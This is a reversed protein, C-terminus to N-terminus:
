HGGTRVLAWSHDRHHETKGDCSNYTCYDHLGFRANLEAVRNICDHCDDYSPSMAISNPRAQTPLGCLNSAYPTVVAHAQVINEGSPDAGELSDNMCGALASCLLIPLM